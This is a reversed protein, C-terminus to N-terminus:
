LYLGPLRDQTTRIKPWPEATYDVGTLTGEIMMADGSVNSLFLHDASYEVVPTGTPTRANDGDVGASFDSAVLVDLKIKPSDVLPLVEIGIRGDIDPLTVKGRPPRDNDTVLEIRFPCGLYLEGNYRYNVIQGNKVSYGGDGESVVRVADFLDPHTITAFILAVEASDQAEIENRFPTSLTRM